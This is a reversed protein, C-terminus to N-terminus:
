IFLIEILAGAGLLIFNLIIITFVRKVETNSKKEILGRVFYMSETM